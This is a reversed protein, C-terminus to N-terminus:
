NALAAELSRHIPAIREFGTVHLLRAVTPRASVVFARGRAERIRRIGAILAGLGASDVFPVGSLDLVVDLGPPLESLATRLRAVSYVDLEGSLALVMVGDDLRELAVAFNADAARLM